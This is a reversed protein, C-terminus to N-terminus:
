NTRHEEFRENVKKKRRNKNSINMTNSTCKWKQKHKPHFRPVFTINFTWVFYSMHNTFPIHRPLQYIKQWSNIIWKLLKQLRASLRSVLSNIIKNWKFHHLRSYSDNWKVCICSICKHCSHCFRVTALNENVFQWKKQHQSHVYHVFLRNVLLGRCWM